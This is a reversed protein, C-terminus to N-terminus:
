WYGRLLFDILETVDAISIIGDGDIDAAGQDIATESNLLYDILETVDAINVAGDGNVDGPKVVAPLTVECTENTFAVEEGLPTTFLINNLSITIPATFAEDATISMSVLAGSNGSYVKLSTSYSMIRIGGDALLKSSITHDRGKRSTLDILYDGADQAVSLGAPLYLDAQFASYEVENDLLIEVSKTEGPNISFDEIYFRDTAAVQLAAAVVLLISIIRRM